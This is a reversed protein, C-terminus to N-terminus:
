WADGRRRSLEALVKIEGDPPLAVRTAFPAYGPKEIRLDYSAPAPLRLAELPTVGRPQGDLTVAAGTLNAVIDIVGFRRFDSPPLLRAAYAAIQDDSPVAGAPLSDAIRGTIERHAVDIRQMTLIVDGLESVGVLLVEAAAVRQGIRAVCAAEGACKVLAQDLHDGYIARAPDQGLVALSTRRTLTAVVRGAIGPLASSGARYELVVLTRRPDMAAQSRPDPDARATSAMALWLGLWLSLCLAFRLSM